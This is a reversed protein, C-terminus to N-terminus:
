ENRNSASVGHIGAYEDRVGRNTMPKAPNSQGQTNGIRHNSHYRSSTSCKSSCGFIAQCSQNHDPDAFCLGLQNARRIWTDNGISVKYVMRHHFSSRLTSLKKTTPTPRTTKFPAQVKLPTQQADRRLPLVPNPNEQHVPAGIKAVSKNALKHYETRNLQQSHVEDLFFAKSSQIFRKRLCPAMRSRKPTM